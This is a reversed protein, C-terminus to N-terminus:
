DAELRPGAVSNRPILSLFADEMSPSIRRLSLVEIAEEELRTRVTDILQESSLRVHLGDGFFNTELIGPIGALAKRSRKLDTPILEIMTGQVTGKLDAPDGM